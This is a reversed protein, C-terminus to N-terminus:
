TQKPSVTSISSEMNKAIDLTVEKVTKRLALPLKNLVAIIDNSKTGKISAVLTGKKGKGDKNTLFTYLEEQSLSTEDISLHTGINKPFLM